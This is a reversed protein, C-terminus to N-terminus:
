VRVRRYKHVRFLHVYVKKKTFRSTHQNPRETRGLTKVVQAAEANERQISQDLDLAWASTSLFFFLMGAAVWGLKRRDTSWKSTRSM